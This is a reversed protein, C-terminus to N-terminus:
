PNLSERCVVVDPCMCALVIGAALSLGPSQVM